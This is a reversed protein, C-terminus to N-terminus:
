PQEERLAKLFDNMVALAVRVDAESASESPHHSIGGRCRVFLMAAPCVASMPAADHGAGSTLLPAEKQQQKVANELLVTLRRDCVVAGTQHVQDWTVKVGREVAIEEARQKLGEGAKVRLSDDPHRLDLSLRAEGPIVNSAGPLAAIEGVTAVLGGRNQALSEVV